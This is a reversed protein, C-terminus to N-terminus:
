PMRKDQKYKNCSYYLGLYKVKYQNSKYKKKGEKKQQKFICGMSKTFDKIGPQPNYDM